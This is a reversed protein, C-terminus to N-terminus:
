CHTWSSLHRWPGLLHLLQRCTSLQKLQTLSKTVRHVIVRWAGKDMTNELCSQVPTPQWARRWPVKRIWPDFGRRKHTRHQCTPEKGSAGGPFGWPSNDSVTVYNSAIPGTALQISQCRTETGEFKFYFSPFLGVGWQGPWVDCMKKRQPIGPIALWYSLTFGPHSTRAGGHLLKM